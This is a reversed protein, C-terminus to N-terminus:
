KRKLLYADGHIISVGKGPTNRMLTAGHPGSVISEKNSIPVSLKPAIKIRKACFICIQGNWTACASGKALNLIGKKEDVGVIFTEVDSVHDPLSEITIQKNNLIPIRDQGTMCGSLLFVIGSLVIFIKGFRIM